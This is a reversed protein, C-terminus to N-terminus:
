IDYVWVKYTKGDSGQITLYGVYNGPAISGTNASNSFESKNELPWYEREGNPKVWFINISGLAWITKLALAKWSIISTKGLSLSVTYNYTYTYLTINSYSAGALYPYIYVTQGAVVNITITYEAENDTPSFEYQISNEDMGFWFKCSTAGKASVKFTCSGSYSPTFLTARRDESYGYTSANNKQWVYYNTGTSYTGVNNSPTFSGTFSYPITTDNVKSLM